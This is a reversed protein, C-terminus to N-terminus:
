NAYAYASDGYRILAKVLDALYAEGADLNNAVYSEVSYRVTDSVAAGDRYATATIARRMQGANLQKFYVYYEGDGDSVLTFETLEFEKGDMTVKISLGSVSETKLRLRIAVSDRLSLGGGTWSVTPETVTAYSRDTIDTVTPVESTGWAKQEDTLGSNVLADAAIDNDVYRQALAGYNLLDVLLTRLEENDSYKDLIRYCYDKVSYTVPEGAYLTSDKTAYLTVTITEGIRHPAIDRFPFVTYVGDIMYSDVITVSQGFAFVVYPDAYGGEELAASKVKFNVGLNHHLSVSAGAFELAEDLVADPVVTASVTGSTVADEPLIIPAGGATTVLRCGTALAERVTKGTVAFGGTYTGGSVAVTTTGTVTGAGSSGASIPVSLTLSDTPAITLKVADRGETVTSITASTGAAWIGTPNEGETLGYINLEVGDYVTAKRNGYIANFTGGYINTTVHGYTPADGNGYFTTFTGGYINNEVSGQVFTVYNAATNNLSANVTGGYTGGYITNSVVVTDTTKGTAPLSSVNSAAGIKGWGGALCLPNTGMFVPGEGTTEDGLVNVVKGMYGSTGQQGFFFSGRALRFTGGSINNTLTKTINATSFCGFHISAYEATIDANCKTYVEGGSINNTVNGTVSGGKRLGFWIGSQISNATYLVGLSGDTINNTVDGTIYCSDRGSLFIGDECNDDTNTPVIEVKAGTFNNTLNGTLIVRDNVGVIQTGGVTGGSFTNVVNGNIRVYATVTQTKSNSDIYSDKLGVGTATVSGVTGGSVTINLDGNLTLDRATIGTKTENDSAYTIALNASGTGVISGVTGGSVSINLDGNQTRAKDTPADGTGIVTEVSGGRIEVTASGVGLTGYATYVTGMKAGNEVIVSCYMQPISRVSGGNDTSRWIANAGVASVRELNTYDGNKFTVSGYLPLYSDNLPNFGGTSFHDANIKWKTGGVTAKGDTTISCNDFTVACGAAYFNTDAYGTDPNTVSMLDIDKFYLDNVVYASANGGDVAKHVDRVTAKNSGNYNLTTITIPVHDAVTAMRLVSTHGIIQTGTNTTNDVTGEVYITIQTGAPFQTSNGNDTVIESFLASLTKKPTAISTGSYADQGNESVYYVLENAYVEADQDVVVSGSVSADSAAYTAKTGTSSDFVVSGSALAEGVTVGDVAFGRPFTGGSVSVSVTGDTTGVKLKTNLTLANAKEPAINLTIAARGSTMPVPVSGSKNGGCFVWTDNPDVPYYEEMGHINLEVGDFVSGKSGTGGYISKFFGGYINTTVKGFVPGNGAGYVYGQFFGGYINNEISGNIFSYYSDTESPNGTAGMYLTSYNGGYITNSVVVTDSCETPQVFQRSSVGVQAWGGALKLTASSMNPGHTSGEAGFINEIKGTPWNVGRSGVSISRDAIGALGFQFNGGSIENRLTGTINGTHAGLFMNAEKGVAGRAYPMFLGGSIKNTVNKATGGGSVGFYYASDVGAVDFILYLQGGNITTNINEVICKQRGGFFYADYQSSTDQPTIKFIGGNITTNIDGNVTAYRGATSFHTGYIEGGNVTLNIDGNYTKRSSSTGDATGIYQNVSGGNITVSAKGVNLTGYRNYVTSMQAGDEICLRFDGNPVDYITETSSKWMGSSMVATAFALNTYDGNKFTLSSVGKGEAPLADSGFATGGTVRWGSNNTPTSGVMAFTVNDFVVNNYGAYLNRDRYATAENTTSQFTIDKLTVDNYFVISGNDDDTAAHGTDLIAKTGTYNYTTILVPVKNGSTDTVKNVLGQTNNSSGKVTGQVYIVVRSGPSFTNDSKAQTVTANLTKKATALTKGDNADSGNESLYYTYDTYSPTSEYAPVIDQAVLFNALADGFRELDNYDPHGAYQTALAASGNGLYAYYFTHLKPDTEKRAEQIEMLAKYKTANTSHLVIEANPNKERVQDIFAEMLSKWYAITKYQDSSDISDNAGLEIFVVDPQRSFSYEGNGTPNYASVYNYIDQMGKKQATGEAESIGTFLGIGGRAVLSYDANLKEAAYYAYSHTASDHAGLWKVGPEYEGLAGDGCTISDGVFEIYLSKNAPATEITGDFALTTLNSYSTESSSTQTEKVVRVTHSGSPITASFSGTGSATYGRWIQDGDVLIAWYATYSSTFGITMTGGDGSVNIDFGSGSWDATIGTGAANAQTRGLAKIKGEALLDVLNYTTVAASVATPMVDAMLGLGLFAALALCFMRVFREKM